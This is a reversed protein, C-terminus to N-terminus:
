VVTKKWNTLLFIFGAVIMVIGWWLDPHLESLVKQQEPPNILSYIGSITIVAGMIVLLLGVFYWITKM